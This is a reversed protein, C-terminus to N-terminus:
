EAQVPCGLRSHKTTSVTGCRMCVPYFEVVEESAQDDKHTIVLSMTTGCTPCVEAVKFAEKITVWASHPDPMIQEDSM